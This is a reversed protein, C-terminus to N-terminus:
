RRSRRVAVILLLPGLALAPAMVLLSQPQSSVARLAAGMRPMGGVPPVAAGPALHEWSEGAKAEAPADPENEPIDDAPADAVPSVVTTDAGNVVISHVLFIECAGPGEDDRVLSSPGWQSTYVTTGEHRTGEVEVLYGRMVISDGESLGVVADHVSPYRPIIHNNSVHTTVYYGDISANHSTWAYSLQRDGM